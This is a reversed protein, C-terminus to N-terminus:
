FTDYGTISVSETNSSGAGTTYELCMVTNVSGAISLGSLFVNCNAGEIAPTGLYTTWLITGTTTPGDRLVLQDIASASGLNSLSATISTCVHRQGVVSAPISVGAQGSSAAWLSHNQPQEVIINGIQSSNFSLPRPLRYNEVILSMGGGAQNVSGNSYIVRFYKARPTFYFSAGIGGIVSFYQNHSWHVADASWQFTLGNQASDQDTLVSIQSGSYDRMDDATGTFTSNATLTNSTSNNNSFDSTVQATIVPIPSSNGGDVLLVGDPTALLNIYPTLGGAASTAALVSKAVEVDQGLPVPNNINSRYVSRTVSYFDTQINLTTTNTSGNTYVIRFYRARPSVSYFSGTNAVVTFTELFNWISNDQSFQISVGNSASAQDSLINIDIDVLKSVDDGVGTFTAGGALQAVTSNNTSHTPTVTAQNVALGGVISSNVITVALSGDSIEQAQQLIELQTKNTTSM